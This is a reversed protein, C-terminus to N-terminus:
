AGGLWDQLDPPSGADTAYYSDEYGHMPVITTYASPSVHQETPPPPVFAGFPDSYHSAVEDASLARNLVFAAVMDGETYEATTDNPPTWLYMQGTNVVGNGGLGTVVEVGNKYFTLVKNAGHVIAWCEDAGSVSTGGTPIWGSGSFYEISRDSGTLITLDIVNGTRSRLRPKVGSGGRARLMYIETWPDTDATFNLEAHSGPTAMSKNAGLGYRLYVETAGTVAWSGNTVNTCILHFANGSYDAVTVGSGEVFLWAAVLGNAFGHTPQLVPLAPKPFSM